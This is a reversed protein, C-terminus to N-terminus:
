DNVELYYGYYSFSYYSTKGDKQLTFYDEGYHTLTYGEGFTFGGYTNSVVNYVTGTDNADLTVKLKIDSSKQGNGGCSTLMLIPFALLVLLKKM